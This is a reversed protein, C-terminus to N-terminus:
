NTQTAAYSGASASRNELGLMVLAGFPLVLWVLHWQSRAKKRLVWGNTPILWAATLIFGVLYGVAEVDSQLTDPNSAYIAIGVLFAGVFVIPYAAVWTLFLTWNLHREFWNPGRVVGSVTNSAAYLKSV